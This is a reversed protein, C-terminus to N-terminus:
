CPYYLRHVMMLVLLNNPIARTLHMVFPMLLLDKSTQNNELRMFMLVHKM